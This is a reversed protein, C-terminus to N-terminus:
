DDRNIRKACKKILKSLPKLELVKLPRVEQADAKSKLAVL